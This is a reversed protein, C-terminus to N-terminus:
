FIAPSEALFLGRRKKEGCPVPIATATSVRDPDSSSWDFKWCDLAAALRKKADPDDLNCAELLWQLSRKGPTSTLTGAIRDSDEHHHGSNADPARRAEVDFHLRGSDGELHEAVQM